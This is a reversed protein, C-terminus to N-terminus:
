CIDCTMDKCGAAGDSNETTDVNLATALTSEVTTLVDSIATVSQGIIPIMDLGTLLGGIPNSADATQAATSAAATTAIARNTAQADQPVPSAYVCLFITIFAVLLTTYM